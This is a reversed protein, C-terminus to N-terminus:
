APDAASVYEPIVPLYPQQGTGGVDDDETVESDNDPDPNYEPFPDEDDSNYQTGRKFQRAPNVCDFVLCM